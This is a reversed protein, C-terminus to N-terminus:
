WFLVCSSNAGFFFQYVKDPEVCLGLAVMGMWHLAPVPLLHRSSSNSSSASGAKSHASDAKSHSTNARSHASYATFHASDATVCLLRVLSTILHLLASSRAPEVTPVPPTVLAAPPLPRPSSSTSISPNISVGELVTHTHFIHIAVCACMYYADFFRDSSARLTCYSCDM